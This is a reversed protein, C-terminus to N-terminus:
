RHFRRFWVGVFILGMLIIEIVPLYSLSRYYYAKSSFTIEPNQLETYNNYNTYLVPYALSNFRIQPYRTGTSNSLTTYGYFNSSSTNIGKENLYQIMNAPVYYDAGNITIVVLDNM